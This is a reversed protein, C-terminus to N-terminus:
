INSTIWALAARSSEFVHDCDDGMLAAIWVGPIETQVVVGFAKGEVWRTYVQRGSEGVRRTWKLDTATNM